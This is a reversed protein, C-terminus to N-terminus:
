ALSTDHLHGGLVSSTEHMVAWGGGGGGGGEGVCVDGYVCWVCVMCVFTCARTSQACGAVNGAGRVWMAAM